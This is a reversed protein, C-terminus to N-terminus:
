FFAKWFMERGGINDERVWGNKRFGNQLWVIKSDLFILNVQIM